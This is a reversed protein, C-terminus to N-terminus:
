AELEGWLILLTEREGHSHLPVMMGPPVVVNILCYANPNGTFETVFGIRSGLIDLTVQTQLFTTM